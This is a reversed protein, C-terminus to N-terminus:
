HSKPETGWWVLCLGAEHTEGDQFASQRADVEAVTTWARTDMGEIYRPHKGAQVPEGSGFWHFAPKAAKFTTSASPNNTQSASSANVQQQAVAQCAAFLVTLFLVREKKM